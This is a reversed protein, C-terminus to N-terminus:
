DEIDDEVIGEGAYRRDERGADSDYGDDADQVRRAARAGPTSLSGLAPGEGNKAALEQNSNTLEKNLRGKAM